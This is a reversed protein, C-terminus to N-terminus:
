QVAYVQKQWRAARAKKWGKNRPDGPAFGGKNIKGGKWTVGNLIKRITIERVGYRAAIAANTEIGRLAYIEHVQEVTLKRKRAPFEQDKGNESRTMWTLHQKNCCGEHGRRCTHGAHYSPEPPDGNVIQCIVRHTTTAGFKGVRVLAYGQPTLTFPFILCDDGEYSLAVDRIWRLHKSQGPNEIAYLIDARNM